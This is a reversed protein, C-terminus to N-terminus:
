FRGHTGTEALPFEREAKSASLPATAKAAKPRMPVIRGAKAEGVARAITPTVGVLLELQGVVVM